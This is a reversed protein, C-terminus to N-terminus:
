SPSNVSTNSSTDTQASDPEAKKDKDRGFLDKLVDGAKNELHKRIIPKIVSQDAKVSPNNFTGTISLPVAITGGERTLADAAQGTIVSAITKKFRAPLLLSLHFDIRESILNQTGDLELGIDDSTLSLDSITLVNDDIAVTSEWDDLTVDRLANIKTFSALKQQLPHNDLHAQSMGFNGNMVTSRILPNLEQDIRTSYDVSTSFAGSIFKYFQSDSGLVPFAKFFSELRLSDLSGKFNFDSPINEPIKWVMTGTAKGEFLEVSAQTLNIKKPTSTAKGSLNQMTVGTIKLKDINASISSNLDPLQLNFDTSTTDSWDILEDLNLYNSSYQGTLRPTTRRKKEEKLYEMYHSLSGKLDFDSSGMEFSLDNLTAKEPSLSFSGNLNSVPEQLAEGSMNGNKVTLKGSLALKAPQSLPGKVGLSFNASGSLENIDPKLDYYNALEELMVDGEAKLNVSRNDSLYNNIVGTAQISNNGSELSGKTITMQPGQLVSEFTINRFPADFEKYDIFGNKLNISGSQVAQEIQNAKGDLTAQARLQGEMRLTDEDIPYFEKITSLDFRIDTNMNDIRRTNEDLLNRINGKASMSN